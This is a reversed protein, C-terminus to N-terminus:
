WPFWKKRYAHAGGDRAFGSWQHTFSRSQARVRNCHPLCTTNVCGSRAEPKQLDPPESCYMGCKGWASCGTAVAPPFLQRQSRLSYCSTMFSIGPAVRDWVFGSMTTRDTTLCCQQKICSWCTCTAKDPEQVSFFFILIGCLLWKTVM